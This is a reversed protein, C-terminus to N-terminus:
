VAHELQAAPVLDRHVARHESGVPELQVLRQEGPASGTRLCGPSGTRDPLATTTPTPRIRASRTPPSAYAAGSCAWARRNLRIRESSCCPVLCIRRRTVQIIIGAPTSSIPLSNRRLRSGSRSAAATRRDAQHGHNGLIQHQKGGEPRLCASRADRHARATLGATPHGPHHQEVPVERGDGISASPRRTTALISRTARSKTLLVTYAAIMAIATPTAPIV